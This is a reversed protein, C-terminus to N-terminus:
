NSAMAKIIDGRTVIGSVTGDTEDTVILRGIKRETMLHAAERLTQDPKITIPRDTMVEGVTQGLVKHVLKEHRNPNQLYIVSDLFMIYPPPDIGTEQWMLDAESIVGVLQGSDNVVPLGSINKEAIIQIAEQLSSQPTVTIPNPTMIEAVTKTM